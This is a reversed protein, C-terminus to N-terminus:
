WEHQVDRIIKGAVQVNKVISYLNFRRVAIAFDNAPSTVTTYQIRVGALLRTSPVVSLEGALSQAIATMLM